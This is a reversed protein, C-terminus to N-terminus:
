IFNTFLKSFSECMDDHNQDCSRMIPMQSASLVSHVLWISWVLEDLIGATDGPWLGHQQPHTPKHPPQHQPWLVQQPPHLHRHERIFGVGMRPIVWSSVQRPVHRGSLLSLSSMGPRSLSPKLDIQLVTHCFFSWFWTSLMHSPLFLWFYFIKPASVSETLVSCNPSLSSVNDVFILFTHISSFASIHFKWAPYELPQKKKGLACVNKM